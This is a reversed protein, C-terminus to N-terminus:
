PAKCVKGTNSTNAERPPLRTDWAVLLLVVKGSEKAAPCTLM